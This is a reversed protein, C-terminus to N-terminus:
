LSRVDDGVRRSYFEQRLQSLKEGLSKQEARLQRLAERRTLMRVENWWARGASRLRWAYHLAEVGCFPMLATWLWAMWVAHHTAILLWTAAYWLVYIPLGVLLRNLAITTRDPRGM